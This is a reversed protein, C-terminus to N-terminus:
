NKIENKIKFYEKVGYKKLFQYKYYYKKTKSFKYFSEDYLAYKETEDRNIGMKDDYEICEEKRYRDKRYNKIIIGYKQHKNYIDTKKYLSFQSLFVNVNNIERLKKILKLTKIVENKTEGPFGIIFIFEIKIGYKSMITGMKIIDEDNFRNQKNMLNLIRPSTTEIGIRILKCGSISIKRAFKEDLFLDIPNIHFLIWYIDVKNNIIEEVFKKIYEETLIDDYFIFKNNKFKRKILNIRKITNKPTEITYSHGGLISYTCFVCKSWYCGKSAYIPQYDKNKKFYEPILFHNSHKKIINTSIYGRNKNLYYLNQINKAKKNKLLM